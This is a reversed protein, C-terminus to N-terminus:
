CLSGDPRCPRIRRRIGRLIPPAMPPSGAPEMDDGPDENSPLFCFTQATGDAHLHEYLHRTLVAAAMSTGSVRYWGHGDFSTVLLGPHNRSQDVHVVHDPGEFRAPGDGGRNPGAASYTSLRDDVERMSGVVFLREHHATAIGNLTFYPNVNGDGPDLFYSQRGHFGRLARGRLPAADGRLIWAHVQFAEKPGGTAPASVRIQVTGIPANPLRTGLGRAFLEIPKNDKEINRKFPNPDNTMRGSGMLAVLVLRGSTSQTPTNPALIAGVATQSAGVTLPLYDIQDSEGLRLSFAEGGPLTVDIVVGVPHPPMWIEVFNDTEDDPLVQWHFTHGPQGPCITANAHCRWLHSNGAPLVIHLLPRQVNHQGAAPPAPKGNYYELLELLGRELMSSGDHGGGHTGFSINVIVRQGPQAQEMVDHIADLVYCSLSRGTTDLLTPIPLQVVHVSKPVVPRSQKHQGFWAGRADHQGVWLEPAAILHMVASGHSLNPEQRPPVATAAAVHAATPMAQGMRRGIAGGAAGGGRGGVSPTSVSLPPGWGHRSGSSLEELTRLTGGQHWLSVIPSGYANQIAASHVSCRDDIVGVLPPTPGITSSKKPPEGALGQKLKQHWDGLPHEGAPQPAARAPGAAQPLGPWLLSRKEVYGGFEVRLVPSGPAFSSTLLKFFGFRDTLASRIRFGGRISDCHSPLYVDELEPVNRAQGQKDGAFELLVLILHEPNETGPDPNTAQTFVGSALQWFLYADARGAPHSSEVEFRQGAIEFLM